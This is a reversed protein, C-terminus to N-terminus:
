TDPTNRGTVWKAEDSVVKPKTTHRLWADEMWANNDETAWEAIKAFLSMRTIPKALVDTIGAEDGEHKEQLTVGGTVAIIPTTGNAGGGASRIAVTAELGGMIPMVVDMLIIDFKSRRCTEVAKAGDEAFEVDVDLHELMKRVLMRNIRVDDAVLVRPRRVVVGSGRMALTLRGPREAVARVGAFWPHNSADAIPAAATPHNGTCRSVVVSSSDGQAAGPGAEEKM